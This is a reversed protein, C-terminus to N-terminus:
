KCPGQPHQEAPYRHGFCGHAQSCANPHPLRQCMPCQQHDPGFFERSILPGPLDQPNLVSVLPLPPELHKIGMIDRSQSNYGTDVTGLEAPPRNASPHRSQSSGQSSEELSDEPTASLSEESKSSNHGTDASLQPRPHTGPKDMAVLHMKSPAVGAIPEGSSSFCGDGDPDTYKSWLSSDPEVSPAPQHHPPARCLCSPDAVPQPTRAVRPRLSEKDEIDEGSPQLAKELVHEPFPSWPMSEDVEVPISRGVFTGSFASSSVSTISLWVSLHRDDTM